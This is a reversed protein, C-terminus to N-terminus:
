FTAGEPPQRRARNAASAMEARLQLLVTEMTYERKWNALVPFQRAEVTGDRPSPLPAPSPTLACALPTAAAVSPQAELSPPRCGRLQPDSLLQRWALQHQELHSAPHWAAGPRRPPPAPVSLLQLEGGPVGRGAGTGPTGRWPTPGRVQRLHHGRPQHVEGLAAAGPLAPRLVVQSQLDPERAGYGAAGPNHREVHAHVAHRWLPDARGAPPSVPAPRVLDDTDDLGYSVSGDGFGKEGKELEELLRFNRPVSVPGSM